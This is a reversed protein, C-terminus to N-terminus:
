LQCPRYHLFLLNLRLWSFQVYNQLLQLSSGQKCNSQCLKELLFAFDSVADLLAQLCSTQACYTWSLRPSSWFKRYSGPCVHIFWPLKLSPWERILKLRVTFSNTKM